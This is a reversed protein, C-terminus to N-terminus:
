CYCFRGFFLVLLKGLKDKLCGSLQARSAVVKAGLSPYQTVPFLGEEREQSTIARPRFKDLPV